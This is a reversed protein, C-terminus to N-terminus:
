VQTCNISRALFSVDCIKRLCFLSMCSMFTAFFANRAVEEAEAAGAPAADDAAEM